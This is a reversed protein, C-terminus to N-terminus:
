KSRGRNRKAKSPAEAMLMWSDLQKGQYLINLIQTVYGFSEPSEKLREVLANREENNSTRYYDVEEALVDILEMVADARKQASPKYEQFKLLGAELKQIGTLNSHDISETNKDSEQNYDTRVAYSSFEKVEIGEVKFFELGSLKYLKIRTEESIRDLNQVSGNAYRFINETSLGAEKVIRGRVKPSGLGKYWSNFESNWTKNNMIREM